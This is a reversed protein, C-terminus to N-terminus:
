KTTGKADLSEVVRWDHPGVHVLTWVRDCNTCILRSHTTVDPCIVGGCKFQRM